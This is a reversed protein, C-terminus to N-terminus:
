DIMWGVEERFGEKFQRFADSYREFYSRVQGFLLRPNGFTQSIGSGFNPLYPNIQGPYLQQPLYQYHQMYSQRGFLAGFLNGYNDSGQINAM